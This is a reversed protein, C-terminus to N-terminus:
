PFVYMYIVIYPRMDGYINAIHIAGDTSSMKSGSVQPKISPAIM